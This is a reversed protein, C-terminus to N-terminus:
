RAAPLPNASHQLTIKESIEKAIAVMGADNPHFAMPAWNFMAGPFQFDFVWPDSACIHHNQSFSAPILVARADRAAAATIASIRQSVYRARDLQTATLPLKSCSGRAPFSTLYDVYVLEAKPSRRRVENTIQQLQSPLHELARDVTTNSTTRCAAHRWIFPMEDPKNRCAWAINNRMYDVDNGGVSVTVLRTEPGLADVQPHQFYQGGKLVHVTTAAGCSVDILRLGLTKAVLHPYDTSSRLCLIPSGEAREGVGPGSAFSSGLAVYEAGGPVARKGQYYVTGVAVGLSCAALLLILGLIKFLTRIM